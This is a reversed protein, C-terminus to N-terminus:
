RFGFKLSSGINAFSSTISAMPMTESRNMGKTLNCGEDFTASRHGKFLIPTDSYMASQIRMKELQEQTQPQQQHVQIIEDQEDMLAGLPDNETVVTRPSIKTPSLLQSNLSDGNESVDGAGTGNGNMMQNREEEAIDNFILSKQCKMKSDHNQLKQLKDIFKSDGAFSDSRTLMRPSLDHSSPSSQKPTELPNQQNKVTTTGEGSSILLGASSLVNSSTEQPVSAKVISGLRDRIRDFAAFDLFSPDKGNQHQEPVQQSNGSDLSTRSTGDTTELTSLNNECSISLRRRSAFKKGARKFHAAGFIVNKLRNWRLQSSITTDSPWEAELVCRNYFGYTLANPQIGSRKMLYHLRVALIPLNYMGCLQMMIRYCVEDCHIRFKSAKALLDYAERLIGHEHGTNESVISPLIIFYISYCTGLLYKAWAEPNGQIRRAMKQASKIEYKTRRSMPSGPTLGANHIVNSTFTKRTQNLLKPDLEFSEYTYTKEAGGVCEPPCVFKTRESSHGADYDVFRIEDTTDDFAGVREACEDFFSLNHDGDSVFSREEIFRIFMQTKMLLQFFKHHAKDRSRLFASMQFLATPDTSGITPAKSLPMLYEKYGRLISAMFRLFAEQIRQELNQERKKRKFDRDLSNMTEYNSNANLEELNRLTQKLIRAARKPLLKTILTKQSECLSINNTDLDICTVDNPPEYMEFFRSDVGILYPVPAHLVEALGLPCLPIYPCQWKFPFLLTSVAEAVATLTSPRLSHILIKQETLVLLLVHLCNEPGLNALLQRFGAGSRPLPSDEPQTLLIRDNSSGSLQLLISPAPFPVEDLLHTIYREIPVPLPQNYSALMQMFMLWKEFTDGFPYNSLICISKNVHLSHSDRIEENDWNLFERQQETLFKENFNEYFTLASGYVKYTGDNATLVFTSFVPAIAKRKKIPGPVHPWAELTTGMPLCFLPVSTCSNLSFDLHDAYPYRHLIEPQYSICKPRNMSKKYCLYVDNGMMGKNLTKGIQCFAHPVKENKGPILVCLDTVVLENCPMDPKARRYTLFIKSSSNNVNALRDGPTKLVIEADQMIRELGEYMVGIDVLPPKERGRKYYLFCATTRVSGFNLDADLGSPTFRLLEFGEPVEEDLAPFFVGIDIIPEIAPATRLHSSDSFINEQLLKPNESMGAVVFYDAVRKEEM